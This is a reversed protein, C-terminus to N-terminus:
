AAAREVLELLALPSFPKGLFADAGARRAAAEVGPGAATLMVIRAHEGLDGELARLQRCAEIGDVRPMEVDLLVLSPPHDRASAVAEAGDCAQTIEVGGVGRLTLEILRRVFPDDDVVLVRARGGSM